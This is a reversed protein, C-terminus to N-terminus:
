MVCDCGGMLDTRGGNLECHEFEKELQTNQQPNEQM